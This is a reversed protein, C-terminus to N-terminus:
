KEYLIKLLLYSDKTKKLFNNLARDFSEKNKREREINAIRIRKYLKPFNNFNNWCEKDKKLMKLIDDDIIFEEDLDPLVEYGSETMLGKKILWRCREKNLESWKSYKARPSFRQMRVGDILEYYSDIWGFSLAAYVADIYSFAEGKEVKGRKCNVWCEKETSHNKLLWQRFEECSKCDLINEYGM